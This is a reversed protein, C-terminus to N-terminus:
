EVPSPTGFAWVLLDTPVAATVSVAPHDVMEFADGAVLPEALSSRTLAGTAVYAHVRGAAPLEVTDGIGLRAVSFRAGPLPAAVETLAGPLLVPTSVDYSPAPPEDTALWVQVFRTRPEAAVESHEVAPHDVGDGTQLVAVQGPAVVLPDGVGTHALGGSVVWSVIAVGSHRHTDFGEGATLLHDDHCVMPGFRLREPDHHNGFSFSHQTARGSARETFRASARRIEVTM